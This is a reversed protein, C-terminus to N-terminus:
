INQFLESITKYDALPLGKERDVLSSTYGRERVLDVFMTFKGDDGMYRQSWVNENVISKIDLQDCALNDFYLGNVKPQNSSIFAQLENITINDPQQTKNGLLLVKYRMSLEIITATPTINIITHLITANQHTIVINKIDSKDGISLGLGHVLRTRCLWDVFVKHEFYSECHITLNCIVGKVWMKQLFPVLGDHLLPDGGGIALETGAVLTDLIPHDLNGHKGSSCSREYCFACERNCQDTIKLDISEPYELLVEGSDPIQRIKTGNPFLMVRTNGNQYVVM